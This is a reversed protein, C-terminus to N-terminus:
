NLLEISTIDPERLDKTEKIFFLFFMFAVIGTFALSVFGINYGYSKVVYGGYIISLAGGLGMSSYVIGQLLNFHGTGKSLDAMMLISVVGFIGAGIGDLIQFFSLLFPDGIISFLFARLPLLLFAILMIKKRGHDANRGAISAVFIMVGQAIIIAGSLYLASNKKDSLGMKQGVLPLMAGNALHFMAMSIIFLLVDKNTLLDKIRSVSLLSNNFSLASRALNHNIDKERIILIALIIALCQFVSFYFIGKYSIFYGIFGAIIAALMNGLHNFSENRGIRKSLLPYGVIGLSIAAVCPAFISQVLGIVVQSTFVSNFQPYHVISLCCFAIILSALIILLRKHKTKDIWAGVPPQAIIGIFGPLSIVIGIMSPDWNKEVLLYVSLYVGVGDKVDTMLLNVIDLGRLSGSINSMLNIQDAMNM